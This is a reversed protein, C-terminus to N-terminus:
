CLYQNTSFITVTAIQWLEVKLHVPCTDFFFTSYFYYAEAFPGDGTRFVM